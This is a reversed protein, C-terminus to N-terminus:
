PKGPSVSPSSSLLAALEPLGRVTYTPPRFHGPYDAGSRSVWATSLGARRAGDIDWPHVAVLLLASADVGCRRAAHAYAAPDPKWAGADEVSLLQEFADRIGARTLLQEGAATSGNTLTVLRLGLDRLARVGDPVDPHVPLAALGSMVHQVAEDIERDLQEPALLTRLVGEGVVAFRESAGAATLAFGDRLLATFWRGAMSGPVGLDAFREVMPSMDSLTENVDFVVVAPRPPM